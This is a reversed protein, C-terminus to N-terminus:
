TWIEDNRRKKKKYIFVSVMFILLLPLAALITKIVVPLRFWIDALESVTPIIRNQTETEFPNDFIENVIRAVLIDRGNTSADSCTSLLLLRDETTLTVDEQIHISLDLLYDLHQQKADPDFVSVNFATEDYAHTHLFAFFELGRTQGDFYLTGYRRANFYGFDHFNGIEGFMVNGAMDHGFFINKFDSFDQANKWDIFIAGSPSFELFVNTNVYKINDEEDGQVIPYDINTGFVTLWAFVEPNIAQLEQFLLSNDETPRFPTYNDSSAAMHIQRSDWISFSGYVLLLLVVISVVINVMEKTAKIARIGNKSATSM